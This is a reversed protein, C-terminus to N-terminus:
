PVHPCHCGFQAKIDCDRGTTFTSSHSKGVMLTRGGQRRAVVHNHVDWVWCSGLSRWHQHPRGILALLAASIVVPHFQANITSRELFLIRNKKIIIAEFCNSSVDHSNQKNWQHKNNKLSLLSLRSPSAVLSYPICVFVQGVKLCFVHERNHQYKTSYNFAGGGGWQM